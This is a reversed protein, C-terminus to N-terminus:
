GRATIVHTAQVTRFDGLSNGVRPTGAQDGSHECSQGAASQGVILNELNGNM